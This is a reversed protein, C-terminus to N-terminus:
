ALLPGASCDTELGLLSTSPQLNWTLSGSLGLSGGGAADADYAWIQLAEVSTGGGPLWGGGEVAVVVV